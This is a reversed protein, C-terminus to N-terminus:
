YIGLLAMFLGGVAFGKLGSNMESVKSAILEELDTEEIETIDIGREALSEKLDVFAKRRLISDLSQKSKEITDTILEM